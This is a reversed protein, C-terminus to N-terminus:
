ENIKSALNGWIVNISDKWAQQVAIMETDSLSITTPKHDHSCNSHDHDMGPIEIMSEVWTNRKKATKDDIAVGLKDISENIKLAEQQIAYAKQLEPSAPKHDHKCSCLLLCLTAILTYRIM